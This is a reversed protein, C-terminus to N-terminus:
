EWRWFVGAERDDLDRGLAARRRRGDVNRWHSFRGLTRRPLRYGGRHGVALGRADDPEFAPLGRPSGAYLGEVGRDRDRRAGRLESQDEAAGMRRGCRAVIRHGRIARRHYARRRLSRADHGGRYQRHQRPAKPRALAAGGSVVVVLGKLADSAFVTPQIALEDDTLGPKAPPRPAQHDVM